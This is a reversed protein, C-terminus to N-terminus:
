VLNWIEICQASGANVLKGATDGAPTLDVHIESCPGCPGTDGMMWFNDKRNGPVVHDAPLYRLWLERADDDAPIKEDGGFYTAYLRERPFKWREVLLEWAWDIAERKFYDGFSWNGLMEFFTLHRATRGIADLDNHKGGIRACKQVDAARPPKFPVPEEGLFYPVFPMMGSHTFMPATPHT